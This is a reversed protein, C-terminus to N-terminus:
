KDMQADYLPEVALAPRVCHRNANITVAEKGTGFLNEKMYNCFFGRCCCKAGITRRKETYNEKFEFPCIYSQNRDYITRCYGTHPCDSLSNAAAEHTIETTGDELFTYHISTSCVENFHTLQVNRAHMILEVTKFGYGFVPNIWDGRWDGVISVEGFAACFSVKNASVIKQKNQEEHSLLGYIEGFKPLFKYIDSAEFSGYACCVLNHVASDVTVSCHGDSVGSLATMNLGDRYLK